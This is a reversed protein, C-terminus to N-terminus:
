EDKTKGGDRPAALGETVIIKAQAIWRDRAIRGKFRAMQGDVWAVDAETWAAIQDFHWIGLGNLLSELAPGIGEIQKLDDAKGDRPAALRLPGDARPAVAPQAAIAAAAPAPAAPAAAPPPPAAPPEAGPFDVTEGPAFVVSALLAIVAVVLGILVALWVGHHLVLKALAFALVGCLAAWAYRSNLPKAATM